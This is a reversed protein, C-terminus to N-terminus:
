FSLPHAFAPYRKYYGGQHIPIANPSLSHLHLSLARLGICYTCEYNVNKVPLRLCQQPTTRSLASQGVTRRLVALVGIFDHFLQEFSKRGVSPILRATCSGHNRRSIHSNRLWQIRESEDSGYITRNGTTRESFSFNENRSIETALRDNM